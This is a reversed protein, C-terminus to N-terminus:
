RVYGSWPKIVMNAAAKGVFVDGLPDVAIEANPLSIRKNFRKELRYIDKQCAWDM